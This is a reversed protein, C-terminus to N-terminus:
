DAFGLEDPNRCAQPQRGRRPDAGSACSRRSARMVLNAPSKVTLTYDLIGGDGEVRSARYRLRCACSRVHGKREEYNALCVIRFPGDAVMRVPAQVAVGNPVVVVKAPDTWADLLRKWGEGLVIVRASLRFVRRALWAQPPPLGTLFRHFRAGHIHLLVPRLLLRALLVDVANRWFTFWSSTHIHVVHPRWVLCEAVLRWLLRLQAAIGQGLSRDASTIKVNNLVRLEVAEVLPGDFAAALNEVVTAMGGVPPPLPGVM